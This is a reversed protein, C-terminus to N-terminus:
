PKDSLTIYTYIVGFMLGLIVNPLGVSIGGAWAGLVGLFICWFLGGRTTFRRIWHRRRRSWKKNILAVLGPITIILMILIYVYKAYDSGFYGISGSIHYSPVIISAVVSLLLAYLLGEILEVPKERFLASFKEYWKM